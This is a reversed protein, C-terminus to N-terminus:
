PANEISYDGGGWYKTIVNLNNSNLVEHKSIRQLLDISRKNRINELMSRWYELSNEGVGCANYYKLENM